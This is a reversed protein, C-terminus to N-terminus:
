QSRAGARPCAKAGHSSDECISCAHMNVCNASFSCTSDRAWSYCYIRNNPGMLAHKSRAGTAIRATAKGASTSEAKCDAPLHGAFGCRFCMSSNSRQQKPNRYGNSSFGSDPASRKSPSGHVSTSGQHAYIASSSLAGHHSSYQLMGATEVLLRSTTLALCQNDLTSLDHRPNLHVFDRQQIDYDVAIAWGHTREIETVIRHHAAFADARASGLHVRLREEMVRSAGLWDSLSIFREAKRDLQKSTLGGQANIVFEENTHLSKIRASKTLSTYPVYKFAAIAEDM